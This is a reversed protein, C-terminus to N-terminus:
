KHEEETLDIMLLPTNKLGAGTYQELSIFRSNSDLQIRLSFSTSDLRIDKKKLQPDEDVYEITKNLPCAFYNSTVAQANNDLINYLFDGRMPTGPFGTNAKIKGEVITKNIVRLRYERQISDYLVSLNLFIIKPPFVEGQEKASSNALRPVKCSHLLIACAAFILAKIWLKSIRM